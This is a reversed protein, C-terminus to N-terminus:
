EGKSEARPVEGGDFFTARPPPDEGFAARYRARYTDADMYTGGRGDSKLDGEHLHEPRLKKQESM